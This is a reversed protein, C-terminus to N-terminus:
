RPRRRAVRRGQDVDTTHQREFKYDFYRGIQPTFKTRHFKWQPRDDLLQIYIDGTFLPGVGEFVLVVALDLTQIALQTFAELLKPGEFGTFEGQAARRLREDVQKKSPHVYGSLAGFASTVAGRFADEDAVMRLTIWDIPEVSSRSVRKKDGLMDVRDALEAAPLQQDVYVFKVLAELLYRLERRGANLIGQEVLLPIAVISELLDDVMSQQLWEGSKPQRTFAFWSLRLVFAFDTLVRSLHTRADQYRPSTRVVAHEAIRDHLQQAAEAFPDSDPESDQMRRIIGLHRAPWPRGARVWTDVAGVDEVMGIFSEIAKV